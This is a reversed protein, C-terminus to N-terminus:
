HAINHDGPLEVHDVDNHAGVRSDLPDEHPNDLLDHLYDDAHPRLRANDHARQIDALADALAFAQQSAAGLGRELQDAAWAGAGIRKPGGLGAALAGAAQAASELGVALSHAAVVAADNRAAVHVDLATRPDM